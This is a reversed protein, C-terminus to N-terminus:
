AAAHELVEKALALYAQAGKSVADYFVAPKGHSPAEALTINRPITSQFVRDGFHSRIEAQVQNNLNNRGDFMTLLVGEVQLSPNLSRRVLEFTNMLQALGEMAYYECQMPILLSDAATLANLTLLGLSPPCDILIFDYHEISGKLRDKLVQERGDMGVLEIEAGVLDIHAPVVSLWPVELPVVLESLGKRGILLDYVSGSLGERSIGIGSTANGQPDLDILLVKKEAVALSAALNISTTTKGVGGKQNAIAIVKGM